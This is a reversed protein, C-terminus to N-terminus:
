ETRIFKTHIRYVGYYTDSWRWVPEGPPALVEYRYTTSDQEELIVDGPQPNTPTGDLVLESARVLFDRDSFEIRVEGADNQTRFRTIGPVAYVTTQSAGRRYIVPRSNLRFMESHLWELGQELM